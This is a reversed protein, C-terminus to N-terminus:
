CYLDRIYAQRPDDPLVVLDVEDGPEFGRAERTGRLPAWSNHRHGEVWYEYYLRGRGRHFHAAEVRGQIVVGRAFVKRIRAVRWWCTLGGGLTGAVTLVLPWPDERSFSLFESLDTPVRGLAMAVVLLVWVLALVAAGTAAAADSRLIRVL